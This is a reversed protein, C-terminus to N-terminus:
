INTCRIVDANEVTLENVKDGNVWHNLDDVKFRSGDVWLNKVTVGNPGGLYHRVLLPSPPLQLPYFPARRAKHFPGSPYMDM